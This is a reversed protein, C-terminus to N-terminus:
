EFLRDIQQRQSVRVAAFRLNGRVFVRRARLIQAAKNPECPHQWVYTRSKKLESSLKQTLKAAESRKRELKVKTKTSSLKFSEIKKDKQRLRKEKQRLLDDKQHLAENKQRLLEKMTKTIQEQRALKGALMEAKEAPNLAKTRM